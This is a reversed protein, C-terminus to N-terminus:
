RTYGSAGEIVIMQEAMGVSDLLIRVEGGTPPPSAFTCYALLGTPSDDVSAMLLQSWRQYHAEEGFRQRKKPDYVVAGPRIVEKVTRGAPLDVPNLTLSQTAPDFTARVTLDGDASPSRNHFVVVTLKAVDGSLPLRQNTNDALAVSFLSTMRGQFARAGASERNVPPDDAGTGASTVIDDRSQALLRMVQPPAPNTPAEVLPSPSYVGTTRLVAGAAFPFNRPGSQTALKWDTDLNGLVPDFIWVAGNTQDASTGSIMVSDARTLGFTVADSLGNAAVTAARDLVVARAAQSQGAPVLSVVSTLGVALIGISILVEMLTIGKRAAMTRM